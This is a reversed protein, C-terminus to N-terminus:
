PYYITKMKRDKVEEVFGEKKYFWKSTPISTLSIPLNYTKALQKLIFMLQSGVGLGKFTKSYFSKFLFESVEIRDSCIEFRITSSVNETKEMKLTVILEYKQTHEYVNKYKRGRPGEYTLNTNSKSSYLICKLVGKEGNKSTYDIEYITPAKFVSETALPTIGHAIIRGGEENFYLSTRHKDLFQKLFLVFSLNYNPNIESELNSICIKEEM